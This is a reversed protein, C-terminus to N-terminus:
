FKFSKSFSPLIPFLSVQVFKGPAYGNGTDYGRQFNIYYPNKRNYANYVGFSNVVEGWKKKKTQSVSLDLRHYPAM